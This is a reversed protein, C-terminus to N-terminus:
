ILAVEAPPDTQLMEETSMGEAQLYSTEKVKLAAERATVAGPGGGVFWIRRRTLQV